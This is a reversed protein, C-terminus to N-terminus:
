KVQEKLKFEKICDMRRGVQAFLDQKSAHNLKDFEAIDQETLTNNASFRFVTDNGDKEVWVVATKKSNNFFLWNQPFLTLIPEGTKKDLYEVITSALKEGMIISLRGHSQYMYKAGPNPFKIAKLWDTNNQVTEGNLTVVALPTEEFVSLDGLINSLSVVYTNKKKRTPRFVKQTKAMEVPKKSFLGM